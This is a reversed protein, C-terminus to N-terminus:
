EFIAMILMKNTYIRIKKKWLNERRISHHTSKWDLVKIHLYIDGLGLPPLSPVDLSKEGRGTMGGLLGPFVNMGKRHQSVPLLRKREAWEKKSWGSPFYSIWYGAPSKVVQHHHYAKEREAKEALDSWVHRLCFPPFLSDEFEKMKAQKISQYCSNKAPLVGSVPDLVQPGKVGNYRGLFTQM